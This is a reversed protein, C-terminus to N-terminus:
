GATPRRPRILLLVGGVVLVVALGLHIPRAEAAMSADPLFPRPTSAPAGPAGPAPTAGPPVAAPAAPPAIPAPPVLTVTSGGGFSVGSGIMFDKNLVALNASQSTGFFLQVPTTGTIAGGSRQTIRSLPVQWDVFYQGSGDPLGRAGASFEGGSNNFPTAYVETHATGDANAVYVFDRQPNKGDLGVAVRAVGGVAIQLMYTTPQFGGASAKRPDGALRIRFFANTGDSNFYVSNLTGSTGSSVDCYGSGCGVDGIVDSVKTGGSLLYARWTSPWAASHDGNPSDAALAGGAPLCALASALLFAAIGRHSKPPGRM